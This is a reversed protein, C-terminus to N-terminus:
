VESPLKGFRQRFARSFSRADDYGVRTATQAVSMGGQEELLRRAETLRVDLLYQVPSLGTLRKLQRLLTSESMAFETAIGSVSLTNNAIHNRVYQEFRVLWEQDSHPLPKTIAETGSAAATAEERRIAQNSLLNKIRVLLEEEDFPKHLYDDVGIRLAKLKDQAEARATLMVVPIHRTADDSKLKELLQYGDMVPMMLDSLILDPFSSHPTLLSSNAAVQKTNMKRCEANMMLDLAAQGNEATIIRYKEELVSRIYDQLALNDEVVLITPKEEGGTHGSVSKGPLAPTESILDDQLIPSVPTKVAETAPAVPFAVRFISGKGVTSEVEITGGFLKTYERCLALGIGTGGEAPKEPRTTQFYRDFLHPVDDPHIGPGNDAVHLHLMASKLSVTTEIRGGAPTFKFANALLNFLIQRFKEQDLLIPPTNDPPLHVSFGINKREAMSEFQTTYTGIFAPLETPKLYIELRGQELKRLDLIDNVLQELQKGSQRAMQLMRAQKDTLQGKQLLTQIPGLLLTLPTRLEHSVNAFFRSKAADLSKLQDAQERTKRNAQQLRVYNYALVISVLLLIALLLTVLRSQKKQTEIQRGQEEIQWNKKLDTYRADAAAIKEYNLAELYALQMEFGKQIYHLATPRRLTRYIEGRLKYTGALLYLHDKGGAQMAKAATKFTSDTYALAELPRNQGFHLNAINQFTGCMASYNGAKRYRQIAAHFHALRAPYDRLTLGLLLHGEGEEFAQGFKPATRLVERAYYASSDRNGFMRHWSSIRVAFGPYLTDLGHALIARQALHLQIISQEPRNIEEYLTALVRCAEAYIDWAKKAESLRQVRLLTQLTTSDRHKQELASAFVLQARLGLPSDTQGLPRLHYLLKESLLLASDLQGASLYTTARELDTLRDADPQAQLHGVSWVWFCVLVVARQFLGKTALAYMAAFTTHLPSVRAPVM